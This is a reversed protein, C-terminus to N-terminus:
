DREGNEAGEEGGLRVRGDLVGVHELVVGVVVDFEGVRDGVAGADEDLEPPEEPAAREGHDAIWAGAVDGYELGYEYAHEEAEDEQLQGVVLGADLVLVADEEEHEDVRAEAIQEGGDVLIRELQRDHQALM